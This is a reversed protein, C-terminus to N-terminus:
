LSLFFSTLSLSLSLICVQKSPPRKFPISGPRGNYYITSRISHYQIIYFILLGIPIPLSPSIYSNYSPPPTPLQPPLAFSIHSSSSILPPTTHLLTFPWCYVSACLLCSLSPLHKGLPLASEEILFKSFFFFFIQLFICLSPSLSPFWFSM